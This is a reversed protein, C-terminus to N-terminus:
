GGARGSSGYRRWALLAMLVLLAAIPLIFNSKYKLPEHTEIESNTLASVIVEANYLASEVYSASENGLFRVYMVRSNTDDSLQESIVGPKSDRMSEPCVIGLVAGSSLKRVSELMRAGDIGGAGEQLLPAGVDFGLNAISYSVGPVAPILTTGDLGANEVLEREAERVRRLEDLFSNTNASIAASDAGMDIFVARYALAMAKANVHGLWFGHANPGGNPLSLLQAGHTAYDTWSIVRKGNLSELLHEEFHLLEPNALIVVDAESLRQVDHISLSFGHPDAGPPMISYTNAEEGSVARVIHEVDSLSVAVRLKGSAAAPVGFLLLAIAVLCVGSVAGRAIRHTSQCINMSEFTRKTRQMM